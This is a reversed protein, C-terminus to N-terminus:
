PGFAHVDRHRQVRPLPEVVVAWGSSDTADILRGDALAGDIRGPTSTSAWWTRARARKAVIDGASRWLRITQAAPSRGAARRRGDTLAQM